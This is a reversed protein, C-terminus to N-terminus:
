MPIPLRAPSPALPATLNACCFKARMCRTMLSCTASDDNRLALMVNALNSLIRGKDDRLCQALWGPARRDSRPPRTRPSSEVDRVEVLRGSTLERPKPDDGNGIAPPKWDPLQEVLAWLRGITGGGDKLWDSVDGKPPMEPWFQALDLLRVRRAVGTLNRCVDQAHDQGPLVPRGDDHFRLEGKPTKAQPDNDPIVIVDADKLFKNLAPEWNGAGGINCTAVVGIKHMGDADKEGEVVFVIHESAIAESLEPLRYPVNRTGKTSWVYGDHVKDPPDDRRAPRRQRFDKPNEYRVNERVTGGNEDVYPYVAAIKGLRAKGNPRPKRREGKIEIGHDRKSDIREKGKLGTVDEILDLDGGGIGREHDFWVGKRLDVSVSGRTGFRLEHKSSMGTNPEGLLIRAIAGIDHPANM